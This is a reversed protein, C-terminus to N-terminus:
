GDEAYRWAGQHDCGIQLNCLHAEPKAIRVSALVSVPSVEAFREAPVVGTCNRQPIYKTIIRLMKCDRLNTLCSAGQYDYVAGM